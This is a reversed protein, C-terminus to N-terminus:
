EPVAVTPTLVLERVVEGTDPDLLMVSRGQPQKLDVALYDKGFYTRLVEADAPIEVLVRGNTTSKMTSFRYAITGMVSLFGLILIIGMGIVGALMRKQRASLEPKLGEGDISSHHEDVEAAMQHTSEAM